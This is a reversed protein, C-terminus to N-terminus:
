INLKKVWCELSQLTVEPPSASDAYMKYDTNYTLPLTKPSSDPTTYSYSKDSNQTITGVPTNNSGSTLVAASGTAAVNAFISVDSRTLVWPETNGNFVHELKGHCKSNCSVPMFMYVVVMIVLITIIIGFIPVRHRRKDIM